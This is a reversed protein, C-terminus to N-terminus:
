YIHQETQSGFEGPGQQNVPDEGGGRLSPFAKVQRCLTDINRRLVDDGGLVDHNEQRRKWPMNECFGTPFCLKNGYRDSVAKEVAALDGESRSKEQQRRYCFCKAECQRALVGRSLDMEEMERCRHNCLLQIFLWGYRGHAFLTTGRSTKLASPKLVKLSCM